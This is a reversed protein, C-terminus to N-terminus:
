REYTGVIRAQETIADDIRTLFEPGTTGSASEIARNLAYLHFFYHHRGHGPPPAPGGYGVNGFSNTGESFSAGGDRPIGGADPPIAWVVWHTFGFTLPADPDHCVLALEVTDAPVAAFVLEPSVDDGETTYEVPIADGHSFAPSSIALNGLHVTV